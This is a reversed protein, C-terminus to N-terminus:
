LPRWLIVKRVTERVRVVRFCAGAQLQGFRRVWLRAAARQCFLLARAPEGAYSEGVHNDWTSDCLHAEGKASVYEVGWLKRNWAM